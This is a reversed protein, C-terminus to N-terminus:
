SATPPPTSSLFAAAVIAALLFIAELQLIRAFRRDAASEATRDKGTESQNGATREDGAEGRAPANRIQSLIGPMVVFRNLGGLAAACLVLGVKVLLTAAYPNGFASNFGGLSRWAAVTGTLFIGGLAISASHSLAAIYHACERRSQLETLRAGPLTILGAVLVEGVWLSILILHVWDLIVALTFDGGAGAHSVMSRSYLLVGIAVIRVMSAAKGTQDRAACVAGIVVLAAAGIMWAMGYHTATIVSRVAPLADTVPLEAMSAAEVWLIAVYATMAIGTAGLLAARLRPLLRAAWPSIGACLWHSAASAGVIVAL